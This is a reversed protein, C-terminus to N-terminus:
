SLSPRPPRSRVALSVVIALVLPMAVLVVSISLWPLRLHEGDNLARRLEALLLLGVPIGLIAGLAAHYGAQLGLFRRRLSPAAGVRVMTAIDHDSETAAVAILCGGILLVLSMAIALAILQVALISLGGSRPDNVSPSISGSQFGNEGIPTLRDQPGATLDGYWIDDVQSGTLPADAVLIAQTQVPVLGLEDAVSPPVLFGPVSWSFPRGEIPVTEVVTSTATTGAPVTPDYKTVSGPQISADDVILSGVNPSLAVVRGADLADAAAQPLRLAAVAEDTGLGVTVGYGDLSGYISQGFREDFMTGLLEVTGAQEITIIGAVRETAAALASGDDGPPAFDTLVVEDVLANPADNGNKAHETLAVSAVVVPLAMVVVLGAVTVSSRFRQRGADRAVLRLSVPLREARAAVRDVVWSALFASGALCLLAGLLITLIQGDSVDFTNRSREAATGSMVLGVALLGLALPVMRHKVPRTPMRGSLATLPAVRSATRAPMWAAAVAAVVGVVAPAIMESPRATASVVPHYAMHRIVGTAMRTGVAGLVVGVISGAVGLVLAEVIVLRRIHAPEAGITSLLGFERLRRRAGTSFAAAAILAVEVLLLSAVVGSLVPPRDLQLPASQGYGFLTATETTQVGGVVRRGEAAGPGAQGDLLADLRDIAAYGNRIDGGILIRSASFPLPDRGPTIVALTNDASSRLFLGTVAAPGGTPLEITDGIALDLRRALPESLAAENQNSAFTGATLTYIGEALPDVADLSTAEVDDRGLQYGGTWSAVVDTTGFAEEVLATFEDFTTTGQWDLFQQVSAATTSDLGYDTIVQDIQDDSPPEGFTGPGFSEVIWLARGSYWSQQEAASPNITRQGAAVIIAAAVPVAILAVVLLSRWLNRRATRAGLRLLPRWAKDARLEGPADIATM